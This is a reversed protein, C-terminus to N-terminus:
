CQRKQWLLVDCWCEGVELYLRCCIITIFIYRPYLHKIKTILRNLYHTKTLQIAISIQLTNCFIKVMSTASLVMYVYVNFNNIRKNCTWSKCTFSSRSASFLYTLFQLLSTRQQKSTTSLLHDDQVKGMYFRSCIKESHIIRTAIAKNIDPM